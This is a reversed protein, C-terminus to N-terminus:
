FHVNRLEIIDAHTFLHDSYFLVDLRPEYIKHPKREMRNLYIENQYTQMKEIYINGLTNITEALKQVDLDSQVICTIDVQQYKFNKM